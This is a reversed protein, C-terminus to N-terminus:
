AVAIWAILAAVADGSIQQEELVPFVIAASSGAILVALLAPHGVGLVTDILLGLPAAAVAVVALSILGRVLGRRIAPSRIDIHTGATLMLMAFGIASFAPLPQVVPDIVGAGTNGLAIGALLEGIVVPVLGVGIWSLLPGALGALFLITLQTFM